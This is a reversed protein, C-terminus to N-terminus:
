IAAEFVILMDTNNKPSTNTITFINEWVTDGNAGVAWNKLIDNKAIEKTKM